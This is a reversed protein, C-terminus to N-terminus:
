SQRVSFGSGRSLPGATALVRGDRVMDIRIAPLSAAAVWVRAPHV